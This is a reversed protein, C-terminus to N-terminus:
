GGAEVAPKIAFLDRLAPMAERSWSAMAIQKMGNKEGPAELKLDVDDPHEDEPSEGPPVYATLVLPGGNLSTPPAVCERLAALDGANIAAVARDQTGSKLTGLRRAEKWAGASRSYPHLARGRALAFAVGAALLVEVGWYLYAGIGTLEMGKDSGGGHSSKIQVGQAAEYAMYPGFGDIAMADLFGGADKRAQERQFDNRFGGSNAEQEARSLYAERDEPTLHQFEKYDPVKEARLRAFAQYDFHHMLTMMLIAGLLTVAGAILPSRLRGQAVCYTAALGLLFGLGIPFALILWFYGSIVHAAYGLVGGIVVVAGTLMLLGGVEFGGDPRYPKAAYRDPYLPPPASPSLPQAEM